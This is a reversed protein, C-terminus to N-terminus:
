LSDNVKIEIRVLEGLHRITEKSHRRELEQVQRVVLEARGLHGIAVQRLSDALALRKNLKM